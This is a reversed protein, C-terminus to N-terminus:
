INKNEPDVEILQKENKELWIIPDSILGYSGRIVIIDMWRCNINEFVM